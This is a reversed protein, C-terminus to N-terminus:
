VSTFIYSVHVYVLNYCVLSMFVLWVFATETVGVWYGSPRKYNGNPDARFYLLCVGWM